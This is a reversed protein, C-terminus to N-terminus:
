AVELLFYGIGNGMKEGSLSPIAQKLAKVTMHRGDVFIIADTSMKPLLDLVDGNPMQVEKGDRYEMTGQPPGDVVVLDILGCDPHDRYSVWAVSEDTHVTLPSHVLEIRQRLSPPILSEAVPRLYRLHEVSYVRGFGNEELALAIISASTGIGTGLDLCVSPRREKVLAYLALANATGM